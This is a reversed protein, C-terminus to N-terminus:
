EEIPKRFGTEVLLEEADELAGRLHRSRDDSPCDEDCQEFLENLLELIHEKSVKGLNFDEESM